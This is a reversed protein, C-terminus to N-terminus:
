VRGSEDVPLPTVIILACIRHEDVWREDILTVIIAQMYTVNGPGCASSTM